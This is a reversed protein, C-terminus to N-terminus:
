TLLLYPLTLAIVLCLLTCALTLALQAFSLPTSSFIGNFHPPPLSPPSPLPHFPPPRFHFGAHPTPGFQKLMVLFVLWRYPAYDPIFIKKEYSYM